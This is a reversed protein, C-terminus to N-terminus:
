LVHVDCLNKYKRGSILLYSQDVIQCCNSWCNYMCWAHMESVFPNPGLGAPGDSSSFTKEIYTIGVESLLGKLIDM